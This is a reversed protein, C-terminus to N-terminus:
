RLRYDLPDDTYNSPNIVKELVLTPNIFLIMIHYLIDYTMGPICGCYDSIPLNVYSLSKINKNYAQIARIFSTGTSTAYWLHMALTRKWELKDYVNIDSINDIGSLLSYIKLIENNILNLMGNNHWQEMQHNMLLKFNENTGAQSILLSLQPFENAMALEAAEKINHGTLYTFINTVTCLHVENNLYSAVCEELRCLLIM